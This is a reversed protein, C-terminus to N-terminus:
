NIATSISEEFDTSVFPKSICGKGGLSKVKHIIDSKPFATMFLVPIEKTSEKEALQKFASLGDCHPMQIDMLILDPKEQEAVKICELGNSAELVDYDNHRLRLALLRIIAPEDDVILIKKKV